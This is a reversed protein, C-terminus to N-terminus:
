KGLVANSYLYLGLAVVLIFGSFILSVFDGMVQLGNSLVFNQFSTLLAAILSALFLWTAIPNKFLLFLSGLVSGWVGIAWTGWVWTPLGYFFALQESTFQSLYAKNKTVSMIFDFAGM